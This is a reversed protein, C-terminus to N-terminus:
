QPDDSTQAILYLEAEITIIKSCTNAQSKEFRVLKHHSYLSLGLGSIGAGFTVISFIFCWFGMNDGTSVVFAFIWLIASVLSLAIGAIFCINRITAAFNGAYELGECELRADSLKNRLKNTTEDTEFSMESKGGTTDFM